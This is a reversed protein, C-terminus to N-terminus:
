LMGTSRYTPGYGTERRLWGIFYHPCLWADTLLWTCPKSPGYVGAHSRYTLYKGMPVLGETRLWCLSPSGCLFRLIAVVSKGGNGEWHEVSGGGLHDWETEMKDLM